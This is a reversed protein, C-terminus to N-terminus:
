ARQQLCGLAVVPPHGPGSPSPWRGSVTKISKIDLGRAAVDTAVLAHFQGAKFDNLTTMRTHQDMDGHISAVRRIYWPHVCCPPPLCARPLWAVPGGQGEPSIVVEPEGTQLQLGGTGVACRAGAAQLAACLEDVRAKQNAFVLVDGEDIFGQLRDLLWKQKHAADYVM